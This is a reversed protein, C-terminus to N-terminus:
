NSRTRERMQIQRPSHLEEQLTEIFTKRAIELEKILKDRNVKKAEAVGTYKKLQDKVQNLETVQDKYKQITQDIIYRAKCMMIEPILANLRAKVDQLLYYNGKCFEEKSNNLTKLIDNPTQHFQEKTVMQKLRNM